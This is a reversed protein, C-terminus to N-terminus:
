RERQTQREQGPQLKQFGQGIVVSLYIVVVVVLFKM